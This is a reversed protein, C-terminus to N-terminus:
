VFNWRTRSAFSRAMQYLAQSPTRQCGSCSSSEGLKNVIVLVEEDIGGDPQDNEAVAVRELCEVARELMGQAQSIDPLTDSPNCRVSWTKDSDKAEPDNHRIREPCPRDPVDFESRCALYREGDCIGEWRMTKIIEYTAAILSDNGEKRDMLFANNEGGRLGGHLILENRLCLKQWNSSRVSEDADGRAIQIKTTAELEPSLFGM